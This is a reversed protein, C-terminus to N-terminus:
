HGVGVVARYIDVYEAVMRDVGFRRLAETHCRGRDIQDIRGLAAVAGAVDEVLFGSIGDDIIEPM